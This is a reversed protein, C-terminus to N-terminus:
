GWLGGRRELLEAGTCSGKRSLHSPIRQALPVPPTVWSLNMGGTFMLGEVQHETAAQPCLERERLPPQLCLPSQRPETDRKVRHCCSTSSPHLDWPTVVPKCRKSPLRSFRVGRSHLLM